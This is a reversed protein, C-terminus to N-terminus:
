ENPSVIDSEKVWQNYRDPYGIWKVFFERGDRRNRTRLVKEIRFVPNESIAQLSEKQFRRPLIRDAADKIQYYPMHPHRKVKAIKYVEDAWLPYYSKSNSGIKEQQFKVRVNDGEKMTAPLKRSMLYDRYSDYGYVCKFVEAENEHNVDVPRMGTIRHVTHNYSDVIRQLVDTYNHTGSHTFFKFMKSRLTRNFREIVSCKITYNLSTFYQINQERCLKKVESNNFETGQDTMLKSPQRQEFISELAKRVTVARKDKLPIAFAYKSLIDICTLIHLYPKKDRADRNSKKFDNDQMDVLDAMFQEDVHSVVVRNRKYKRRVPKHLTYVFSDKLFEDVDRRTISPLEQRSARFLKEKSSFSAPHDVDYYIRSLIEFKPQSLGAM